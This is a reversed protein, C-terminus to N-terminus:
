GDEEEWIREEFEFFDKGMPCSFEKDFAKHGYTEITCFYACKGCYFKM